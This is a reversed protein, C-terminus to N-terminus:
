PKRFYDALKPILATNMARLLGRYNVRRRSQISRRKKLIGPIGSIADRKARLIVASQGRLSFVIVTVINLAIHYPLLLWFLLGPMNKVFTWVMNRHGHYVAFDSRQGGTSASGFHKVIATPVLLCREGMLRLRFGLDVDEFYCFFDDDFGGAKLISETRYMAAAACPSFVERVQTENSDNWGHGYRWALGSMHYVDGQGDLKDQQESQLQNSAFFSYDPYKEAALMLQELWEPDPFADPNLLVLWESERAQQLLRNNAGAFGYNISNERYVMDPFAAFLDKPPPQDSANDAVLLKFDTYTQRALHELCRTLHSWSNWNIILISCNSM